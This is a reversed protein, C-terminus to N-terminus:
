QFIPLSGIFDTAIIRYAPRYERRFKESHHIAPYGLDKWKEVAADFDCLLFPLATECILVRAISLKEELKAKGDTESKASLYFLKGLTDVDIGRKLCSLHVRVYDGDLCDILEGDAKEDSIKESELRIYEIAGELSSVMHECGFSSQFLFKFLDEIEMLPYKKYHELILTRTKEHQTM